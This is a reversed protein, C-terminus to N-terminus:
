EQFGRGPRHATIGVARSLRDRGDRTRCRLSTGRSPPMQPRPWRHPGAGRPPLRLLESPPLPGLLDRRDHAEMEPEEPLAPQQVDLM